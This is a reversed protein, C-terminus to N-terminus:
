FHDELYDALEEFERPVAFEFHAYSGERFDGGRDPVDYDAVYYPNSRMTALSDQCDDTDRDDGACSTAVTIRDDQIWAYRLGEVDDPELGVFGLLPHGTAFRWSWDYVRWVDEEVERLELTSDVAEGEVDSRHYFSYEFVVQYERLGPIEREVYVDFSRYVDSGLYVEHGPEFPEMRGDPHHLSNLVDVDANELGEVYADVVDKPEEPPGSAEESTAEDGTEEEEPRGGEDDGREQELERELEEVRRRLRRVEDEEEDDTLCGSFGTAALVGASLFSRRSRLGGAGDALCCRDKSTM